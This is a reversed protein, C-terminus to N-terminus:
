DWEGCGGRTSFGLKWDYEDAQIKCFCKLVKVSTDFAAMQALDINESVIIRRNNKFVVPQNYKEFVASITNKAGTVILIRINSEILYLIDKIIRNFCSSTIIADDICFVFLHNKFTRAYNFVERIQQAQIQQM